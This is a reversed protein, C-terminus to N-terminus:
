YGAAEAPSFFIGLWGQKQKWAACGGDDDNKGKVCTKGTECVYIDKRM